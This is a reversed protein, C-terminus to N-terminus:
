INFILIFQCYYIKNNEFADTKHSPLDLSRLVILMHFELVLELIHVNHSMFYTEKSKEMGFYKYM